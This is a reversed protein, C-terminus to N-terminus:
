DAATAAKVPLRKLGEIYIDVYHEALEDLRIVEPHLFSNYILGDLYSFFGAIMTPVDGAPLQGREIAARFAAEIHPVCEHRSALCREMITGGDEVSESKHFLIEYVQRVGPETAARHLQEIANRRIRGLPDSEGALQCHGWTEDLPMRKREMLAEILDQKNRFHWYIAGRTMGAERAIDDLSTATVGRACFMRAAADLLKERTAQAEEKTRRAM